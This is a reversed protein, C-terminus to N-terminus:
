EAHQRRMEWDDTALRPAGHVGWMDRLGQPIFQDVRLFPGYIPRADLLVCEREVARKPAILPKRPELAAAKKAPRVAPKAGGAKKVKARHRKLNAAHLRKRVIEQCSTHRGARNLEGGNGCERCKTYVVTGNVARKHERDVARKCEPHAGHVLYGGLKCVRCTPNRQRM